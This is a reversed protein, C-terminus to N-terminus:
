QVANKKANDLADTATKIVANQAAATPYNGMSMIQGVTDIIIQRFLTKISKYKLISVPAGDAHATATTGLDARTITLTKGTKNTVVVAEGDVLLEDNNGIGTADDVKLALDTALIAGVLKVTGSTQTLMWNQVAATADASVTLSPVNVVTQSYASAALILAFTITKM